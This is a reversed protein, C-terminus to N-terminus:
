YLAFVSHLGICSWDKVYANCRFFSYDGWVSVNSLICPKLITSLICLLSGIVRASKSPIIRVTVCVHM